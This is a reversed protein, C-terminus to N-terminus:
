GKLKGRAAKGAWKGFWVMGHLGKGVRADAQWRREYAPGDLFGSVLGAPFSSARQVEYPSGAHLLRPKEFRLVQGGTGFRIMGAGDDLKYTLNGYSRADRGHLRTVGVYWHREDALELATYALSREFMHARGWRLSMLGLKRGHESLQLCDVYGEGRFRRAGEPTDVQISVDARLAAIHWAFATVPCPAVPKWADHIPRVELELKGAPVTLAVPLQDLGRSLDMLPAPDKCHIVSREGDRSFLELSAQAHWRGFLQVWSAYLVCVEGQETILDITVKRYEYSM